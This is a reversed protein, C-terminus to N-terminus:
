LGLGPGLGSPIDVVGGSQMESCGGDLLALACPGLRSLCAQRAAAHPPGLQDDDDGHGDILLTSLLAAHM